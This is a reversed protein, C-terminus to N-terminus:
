ATVENTITFSFQDYQTKAQATFVDHDILKITGDSNFTGIESILFGNAQTTSLFCNVTVTRSAEDFTPYGSTFAQLYDGSSAVKFDDIIFDGASSTSLASETIYSIYTTDLNTTGPSGTTGSATGTNFNLYNWGESLQAKTRDYSYYNSGDTGFRIQLATGSTKLLAYLTSSIYAFVWLDKSAFSALSTTTKSMSITASSTDSKILNLSGTGEKFSSTNLSVSNTGNATWGTTADCADVSETGTIPVPTEVATDSASPTTTGIGVKFQSPITYDPSSKYTRNLM